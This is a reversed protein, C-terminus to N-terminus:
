HIKEVKEIFEDVLRDQDKDQLENELIEQAKLAALDVVEQKVRERASQLEQQITLEANEIIQQVREKAEAIIRDKEAMGESRYQDLISKKEEEFAKLKQEITQYEREADAKGTKLDELRQKIGEIRASFFDRIPAKRLVFFLIIVLLAFNIFRYLLDILDASRDGGGHGGAASVVDLPFLCLGFCLIFLLLAIGIKRGSLLM